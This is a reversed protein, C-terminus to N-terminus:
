RGGKMFSLFAAVGIGVEWSQYAMSICVTGLVLLFINVVLSAILQVGADEEMQELRTKGLNM